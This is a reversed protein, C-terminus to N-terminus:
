EIVEDAVAILRDPVTLGLAKATKLNIVLEFKTPQQVPLDAPKEGRLIRDVYSAARRFLDSPDAGYSILGGESAFPRQSYIAPLRTRAALEVILKRHVVIFPDPPFIFGTDPERGAKTMTPEIAALDDFPLMVPEVAFGKAANEVSQLFLEASPTTKPNFIISIRTIHPAIDKLLELWKAGLSPELFSFGTVNGGPHALNNVFGQAVPESVGVFVIPITSTAQRLVATAPTANSLIIDPSLRLLESAATRAREIDGVSWRYDIQVNRGQAWGFQEMAAQFAAIRIQTEPDDDATNILVGVHRMREMQQARAGLPLAVAAGGILTVFERRRM